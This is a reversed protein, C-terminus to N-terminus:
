ESLEACTAGTELKEFVSQVVRDCRRGMFTFAQSNTAGALTYLKKRLARRARVLRVKVTDETLDLCAATEATSMTEIERLVFVTRYIDPLADVAQEIFSAGEYRLTQQEPDPESSKVAEIGQSPQDPSAPFDQIRKRKRLRSSAEYIAIKTLWTSFKARGAFRDLSAYARVYADQMVDEAENDDLLMARAIRFLRQNYRRMLVEYLATDGALVRAVVEEDALPSRLPSRSEPDVSNSTM